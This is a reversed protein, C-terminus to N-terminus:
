RPHSTQSTQCSTQSCETSRLQEKLDASESDSEERENPMTRNKFATQGLGSRWTDVKLAVNRTSNIHSKESEPLRKTSNFPRSGRAQFYNIQKKNIQDVKRGSDSTDM